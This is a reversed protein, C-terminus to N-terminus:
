KDLPILQWLCSGPASSPPVIVKALTFTPTGPMGLARSWGAMAKRMRETQPWAPPSPGRFERNAGYMYTPAGQPVRPRASLAKKRCVDPQHRLLERLGRLLQREVAPIATGSEEVESHGRIGYHQAPQQLHGLTTVGRTCLHFDGHLHRGARRGLGPRPSGDSAQGAIGVELYKRYPAGGTMLGSPVLKGALVEM